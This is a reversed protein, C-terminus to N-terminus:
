IESIYKKINESEKIANLGEYIESFDKGMQVIEPKLIIGNEYANKAKEWSIKTYEIRELSM